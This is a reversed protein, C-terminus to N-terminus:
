NNYGRLGGVKVMWGGNKVELKMVSLIKRRLLKKKVRRAGSKKSRSINGGSIEVVYLVGKGLIDVKTIGLVETNDWIPSLKELNKGFSKCYFQKKIGGIKTLSVLYSLVGSVARFWQSLLSSNGKKPNFLPTFFAKDTKTKKHILFQKQKNNLKM